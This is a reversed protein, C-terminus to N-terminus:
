STPEPQFSTFYAILSFFAHAAKQNTHQIVNTAETTSESDSKLSTTQLFLWIFITFTFHIRSRCQCNKEEHHLTHLAINFDHGDIDVASM